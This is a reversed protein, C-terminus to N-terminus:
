SLSVSAKGKESKPLSLKLIGNNYTADLKDTKVTEPIKFRREFSGYQREIYHYNREKTEEEKKKEGKITLIGNSLTIDLDKVDIGPIEATILYEKETESVDFATMAEDKYGFDNFFRDFVSTSPFLSMLEGTRPILDLMRTM